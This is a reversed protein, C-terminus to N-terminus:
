KAGIPVRVEVCNFMMKETGPEVPIERLVEFTEERGEPWVVVRTAKGVDDRNFVLNATDGVVPEGSDDPIWWVRQKYQDIPASIVLTGRKAEFVARFCFELTM